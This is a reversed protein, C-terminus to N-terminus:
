TVARRVVIQVKPKATCVDDCRPRLEVRAQVECLSVNYELAADETATFWSGHGDGHQDKAM